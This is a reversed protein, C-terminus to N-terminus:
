GMCDLKDICTLEGCKGDGDGPQRGDPFGFKRVEM